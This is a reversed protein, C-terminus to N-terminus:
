HYPREINTLATTNRKEQVQQTITITSPAVAVTVPTWQSKPNKDMAADIAQNLVDMGSAQQVEISGVFLAKIQKKPEEMPTPFSQDLFLLHNSGNTHELFYGTFTKPCQSVQM